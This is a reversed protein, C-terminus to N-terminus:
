TFLSLPLHDAANSKFDIDKGVFLVCVFYCYILRFTGTVVQRVFLSCVFGVVCSSVYVRFEGLRFPLEVEITM